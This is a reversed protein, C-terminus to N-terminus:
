CNEVCDNVINKLPCYPSTGKKIMKMATESATEVEILDQGQEFAATLGCFNGWIEAELSTCDATMYDKM